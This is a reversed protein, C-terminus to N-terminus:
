QAICVMLPLKDAGKRTIVKVIGGNKGEDERIILNNYHLVFKKLESDYKNWFGWKGTKIENITAINQTLKDLTVVSGNANWSAKVEGKSSSPNVKVGYVREVGFARQLQVVKNGNYGLDALILDPNYAQLELIIHEIDANINDLTSSEKVQFSRIVDKRGDSRVGTILISHEKGWDIAAVIKEYGERDFKQEPLDPRMANLIDEEKVNMSLDEYPEGLVYNYFMQRSTATLEKRKIEDFSIWVANLQSIFYGSIGEREPHVAKWYGDYWRDIPEACKKCVCKFTGPKVTKAIEDVGNPDVQLVNGSAEPHDADYDKWELRQELGCNECKYM